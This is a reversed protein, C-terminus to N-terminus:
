NWSAVSGTSRTILYSLDPGHLLEPRAEKPDHDTEVPKIEGALLPLADAPHLRQDLRRRARVRDRAQVLEQHRHHTGVPQRDGESAEAPHRGPKASLRYAKTM